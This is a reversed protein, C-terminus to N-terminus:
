EGVKPSLRQELANFVYQMIIPDANDINEFSVPIKQGKEDVLSWDKLLRKIKVDMYRFPDIMNKENVSGSNIQRTDNWSPRKFYFVAKETGEVPNPCITAVNDQMVYSVEIPFTEETVLLM